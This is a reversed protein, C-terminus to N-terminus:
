PNQKDKEFDAKVKALLDPSTMVDLATMALAKGQALTYPQAEPAGAVATFERQHNLAQCNLTYMPHISPVVHSVNGMDTSGAAKGGFTDEMNVGLTAANVDYLDALTNNNILNSYHAEHLATEMHIYTLPFSSMRHMWHSYGSGRFVQLSQREFALTGDRDAGRLYYILETNDPIINPKTGGKSIIGAM